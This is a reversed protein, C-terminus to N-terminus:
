STAGAIVNFNLEVAESLAGGSTNILKISAAGAGPYADVRYVTKDAAGGSVQVHITSTATLVSNNLTFTVSSGGGLAAANTTIKGSPKNLTVATSKSTAQTVTGGSGTGYGLTAATSMSFNGNADWTSRTTGDLKIQLVTNAGANTPDAEVAISRTTNSLNTIGGSYAVNGAEGAYLAATSFTTGSVQLAGVSATPSLGVGVLGAVDKVIQGSGINIAATSGSFGNIVPTTLTKNTLTEAGALTAFDGDSLATNFQATTGSVTNSGLAITKNSLTTTVSDFYTKLTAKANAWTLSKLANSAASDVLGFHDADVPTTKGTAGNIAAGVVTAGTVAEQATAGANIRVVKSGNGSLGPLKNFGGQILLLESRMASSSGLSGSSPYGSHTYYDGAAVQGIVLAAGLLAAFLKKM